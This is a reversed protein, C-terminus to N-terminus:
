LGRPKLAPCAAITRPGAACSSKGGDARPARVRSVGRCEVEARNRPRAVGVRRVGRRVIRFERLRASGTVPVDEIERIPILTQRGTGRALRPLWAARVVGIQQRQPLAALIKRQRERPGFYLLDGRM